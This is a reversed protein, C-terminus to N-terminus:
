EKKRNGTRHLSLQGRGKALGKPHAWNLDSPRQTPPKTEKIGERKERAMALGQEPKTVAIATDLTIALEGLTLCSYGGHLDVM